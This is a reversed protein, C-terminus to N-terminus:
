FNGGDMIKTPLSPALVFVERPKEELKKELQDIEKVLAKAENVSMRYEAVGKEVNKLRQRLKKIESM